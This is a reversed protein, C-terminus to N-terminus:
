YPPPSWYWDTLKYSAHIRMQAHWGASLPSSDLHLRRGFYTFGHYSTSYHLYLHLTYLLFDWAQVQERKHQAPLPLSKMVGQLGSGSTKRPRGGRGRPPRPQSRTRRKREWENEGRIGRTKEVPIRKIGTGKGSM